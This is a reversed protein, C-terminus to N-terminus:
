KIRVLLRLYALQFLFCLKNTCKIDPFLFKFIFHRHTHACTHVHVRVHTYTGPLCSTMITFGIWSGVEYTYNPCSVFKFLATFFNGTPMPVKRVTTGAPRLNRFVLHISLNGLECLVFIIAGIYFQLPNPATYLPHNIHYAVYM